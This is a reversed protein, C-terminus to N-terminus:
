MVLPMMEDVNFYYRIKGDGGSCWNEVDLGVRLSRVIVIDDKRRRRARGMPVRAKLVDVGLGVKAFIVMMPRKASTGVSSAVLVPCSIKFYATPV